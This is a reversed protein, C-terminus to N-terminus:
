GLEMVLTELVVAPAVGRKLQIDARLLYEYIKKLQSLDYRSAQPLAKQIVFPHLNLKTAIQKYNGSGQNLEARIQILIRFQRVLMSLLYIGNEGSELQEDILKLALKKNGGGVADTLNFINDDTKVLYSQEIDVARIEQGQCGAALRKIENVLAWLNGDSRQALLVANAQSITLGLKTVKQQVWKILAVGQLVNFEQSFKAGALYKFLAGRKDVGTEWLVIVNEDQEDRYDGKKLLALIDTQMKKNQKLINKVVVMRKAALFSRTAIAKNFDNLSIKEGDVEILNVASKDVKAVFKQKLEKLKQTSRYSDAGYLFIIM